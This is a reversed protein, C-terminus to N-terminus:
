RGTRRAFTGSLGWWGGNSEVRGERRLLELANRVLLQDFESLGSEVHYRRFVRTSDGPVPALFDLVAQTIREAMRGPTERSQVDRM